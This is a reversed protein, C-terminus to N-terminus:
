LWRQHLAFFLAWGCLYWIRGGPFSPKVQGFPGAWIGPRLLRHGMEAVRRLQRGSWGVLFLFTGWFLVLVLPGFWHHTRIAAYCRVAVALAINALGLWRWRDIMRLLAGRSAEWWHQRDELGEAPAPITGRLLIIKAPLMGLVTWSVAAPGLWALPARWLLLAWLAALIVVVAGETRWDIFDSLPRSEFIVALGTSVRPVPKLSRRVWCEFGVMFIWSPAVMLGVLWGYSSSLFGFFRPSAILLGLAAWFPLYGALLGIRYRRLWRRGPGEYFGAPVEFGFFYEPAHSLPESWQWRVMLGIFIVSCAQFVILALRMGGANLM